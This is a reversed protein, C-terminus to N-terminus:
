NPLCISKIHLSIDLIESLDAFVNEPHRLM